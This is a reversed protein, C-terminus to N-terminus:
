CLLPSHALCKNYFESSYNITLEKMVHNNLMGRFYGTHYLICKLQNVALSAINHIGGMHGLTRYVCM